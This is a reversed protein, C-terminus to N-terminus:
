AGRKAVKAFAGVFVRKAGATKLTWALADATAGTTIVDDILLITRGMVADRDTVRFANHLNDSRAERSQGVQPPTRRVRRVAHRAVKLGLLQALGDALHVSQNFRRSLLRTRHLPVPIMIDAEDALPKLAPAMMTALMPAVGIGDHYKLKHVLHRGMADFVVAARAKDYLPFNWKLEPARADPGADFPLPAGTIACIPPAIFTVERWCSGCLTRPVSLPRRCSVCLPPVLRSVSWEAAGSLAARVAPNFLAM